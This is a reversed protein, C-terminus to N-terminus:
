RLGDFRVPGRFGRRQYEKEIAIKLAPPPKSLKLAELEFELYYFAARPDGRTISDVYKRAVEFWRKAEPFPIIKCTTQVREM